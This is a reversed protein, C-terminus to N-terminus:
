KKSLNCNRIYDKINTWTREFTPNATLFDCCEKKGPCTMNDLHNRFHDEVCEKEIPQWMKKKFWLRKKVSNKNSSNIYCVSSESMTEDPDRSESDTIKTKNQTIGDIEDEEILIDTINIPKGKSFKGEEAAILLRGVNTIQLVDDPLRYYDLHVNLDHGM